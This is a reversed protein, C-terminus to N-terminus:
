CSVPIGQGPGACVGQWCVSVAAQRCLLWSALLAPSLLKLRLKVPVACQVPSASHKFSLFLGDDKCARNVHVGITTRHSAVVENSSSEARLPTECPGVQDMCITARQLM